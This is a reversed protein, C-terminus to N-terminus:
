AESALKEVAAMAKVKLDYAEKVPAKLLPPLKARKAEISIDVLQAITTADHIRSIIAQAKEALEDAADAPTRVPPPVEGTEKDYEIVQEPPAELQPPPPVHESVVVAPAPVRQAPERSEVIEDVDYMSTIIDSYVARATEAQCRARLMSRTHKRWNDKEALGARQADEITFEGTTPVPDGVRQTRIVCKTNTSEVLIWYQCKPSNKILAVMLDSSLVPKGEIIHISRLSQMTPLGLERGTVMIAFAAEPSRIGKSLLQSALLIKAFRYGSELSDPEYARDAPRTMPVVNSSLTMDTPKATM